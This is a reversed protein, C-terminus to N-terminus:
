GLTSVVDVLGPSVRSAIQSTSLVTTASTTAHSTGTGGNQVADYSGVAAAAVALGAAGFALGRRLRRRRPPPM